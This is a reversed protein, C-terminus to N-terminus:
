ISSDNGENNHKYNGRKEVIFGLQTAVEWYGDKVLM